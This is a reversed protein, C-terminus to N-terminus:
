DSSTVDRTYRCDPYGPCLGEKTVSKSPNASELILRDYVQKTIHCDALARHAGVYSIGYYRSLNELSRSKLESLYMRALFRTDVFDNTLDRGLHRVADRCLFRMDFHELNHGMLVGDGVFEAFDRMVSDIVPADKVMDDTIGNIASASYPIHIGPNILSSFEEIIEGNVVRLASLEIVADTDPSLGTTEIDLVFYEEPALILRKKNRM